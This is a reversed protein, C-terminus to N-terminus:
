DFYITWSYAWLHDKNCILLTLRDLLYWSLQCLTYPISPNGLYPDRDLASEEEGRSRRLFYKVPVRKLTKSEEGEPGPIEQMKVHTNEYTDVELPSRKDQKEDTEQLGKLKQYQEECLHKTRHIEQNSSCLNVKAIGIMYNNGKM